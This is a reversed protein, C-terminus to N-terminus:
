SSSGDRPRRVKVQGFDLRTTGSKSALTQGSRVVDFRIMLPGKNRNLKSQHLNITINKRLSRGAPITPLSVRKTLKAKGTKGQKASYKLVVGSLPATGTSTVTVSAKLKFKKNKAKAKKPVKVSVKSRFTLAQATGTLAVTRLDGTTTANLTAKRVGPDGGKPDFTVTIQCSEDVPIAAASCADPDAIAFDDSDPGTVTLSSVDVPDFGNSTLTFTHKPRNSSLGISAQGFDYAQADFEAGPQTANATVAVDNSLGPADLGAFVLRSGRVTPKFVIEFACTQGIPWVQGSCTDDGISFGESEPGDIWSNAADLPATGNSTVTIVESVTKGVPVDGLDVEDPSFDAGGVLATGSLPVMHVADQDNTQIRIRATRSVPNASRPQYKLDLHCDDGPDLAAPCDNQEISYDSLGSGSLTEILIDSFDLDTTGTSSITFTQTASDGVTVAGFDKAAPDIQFGPNVGQMTMDVSTPGEYSDSTLDLEAEHTGISGATGDVTVTCSSGPAITSGSCPDDAISYNGVGTGSLTVGSAAVHMDANGSNLILVSRSSSQGLRLIGFDFSEPSLSTQPAVVSVSIPVDIAETTGAFTVHVSASYDGPAGPTFKVSQDCPANVNTIHGSCGAPLQFSAADSGTLTVQDIQADPGGSNSIQVQKTQVGADYRVGTFSLQDPSAGLDIKNQLFYLGGGTWTSAAFEPAGDGNFDGVALNFPLGVDGSFSWPGGTSTTFQHNGLSRAVRVRFQSPGNPRYHEFWAIDPLGDTDFDGVQLMGIGVQFADNPGNSGDHVVITALPNAVMDEEDDGDWVQISGQSAVPTQQAASESMSAALDDNGDGDFDASKISDIFGSPQGVPFPNNSSATFNRTGNGMMLYISSTVNDERNAIAFALDNHGDGNFDGVTNSFVRYNFTQPVGPVQLRQMQTFGGSGNGYAIGYSGSVSGMVVDLNGDTDADGVSIANFGAPGNLNDNVDIDGPAGFTGDGNGLRVSPSPPCPGPSCGYDSEVLDAKGDKNFDGTALAYAGGTGPAADGASVWGGAMSLRIQIGNGQSGAAIDDRGDGDFDASVLANARVSPDNIISPQSSPPAFKMASASAPLALLCTLGILAATLRGRSM